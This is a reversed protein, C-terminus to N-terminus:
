RASKWELLGSSIRYSYRVEDLNTYYGTDTEWAAVAMEPRGSIIAEVPIAESVSFPALDTEVEATTLNGAPDRLSLTVGTIHMDSHNELTVSFGGSASATKVLVAKHLAGVNVNISATYGGHVTTGTLTCRGWKLAEIRPRHDSNTVIAVSEDSSVWNMEKQTTDGPRVKATAFAHEGVPIRLGKEDFHVSEVPVVIEINVTAKRSPNEISTVVVSTEGGGKATVKGNQDVHCIYPNVARYTIASKTATDPKIIPALEVVDGVRMEYYDTEFSISSIPNLCTVPVIGKVSPDAKSTAVVYAKGEGVAKMRGESDVKVVSEDSSSWVVRKDNTNSPKVSIGFVFSKGTAVIYEDQKFSISEPMQSVNLKLTARANGDKSLVTITASGRSVATIMGQEDVTAVDENSSSFTVEPITADAPELTYGLTHNEGVKMKVSAAELAIKKVAEVVQVPVTASIEPYRKSTITVECHGQSVGKVKGEYDVTAIAPDSSEYAFSSKRLQETTLRYKVEVKKGLPVLLHDQKLEIEGIEEAAALGACMLVLLLIALFRKM